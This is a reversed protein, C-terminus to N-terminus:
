KGEGGESLLRPNASLASVLWTGAEECMKWNNGVPNASAYDKAMLLLAIIHLHAQQVEKEKEALRTRLVENEDMFINGRDIYEEAQGILESITNSLAVNTLQKSDLASRLAAVTEGDENQSIRAKNYLAEWKKAEELQEALSDREATLATIHASAFDKLTQRWALGRRVHNGVHSDFERELRMIFGDLLSPFQEKRTGADVSAPPAALLIAVVDGIDDMHDKAEDENFDMSSYDRLKIVIKEALTHTALEDAGKAEGARDLARLIKDAFEYAERVYAQDQPDTSQCLDDWDKALFPTGARSFAVKAVAERAITEKSPAPALKANSNIAGLRHTPDDPLPTIM